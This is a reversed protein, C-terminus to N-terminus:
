RKMMKAAYFGLAFGGLIFLAKKGMGDPKKDDTAPPTDAGLGAVNPNYQQSAIISAQAAKVAEAPSEPIGALRNSYIQSAVTRERLADSVSKYSRVPGGLGRLTAAAPLSLGPLLGPRQWGGRQPLTPNRNPGAAGLGSLGVTNPNYANSSMITQARSTLYENLDQPVTGLGNLMAIMEAM